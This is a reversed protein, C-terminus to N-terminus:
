SRTFTDNGPRPRRHDALATVGDHHRDLEALAHDRQQHAHALEDTLDHIVAAYTDVLRQLHRKDARSRALDDELRATTDLAARLPASKQGLAQFEAQYRRMLDPHKHTLVWRKVGADAVLDSVTLKGSSRQPTGAILRDAMSSM